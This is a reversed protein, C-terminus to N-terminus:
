FPGCNVRGDAEYGLIATGAPCSSPLNIDNMCKPSGDPRFGIFYAHPGVLTTCDFDGPEATAASCSQDQQNFVGSITNCFKSLTKSRSGRIFNFTYKNLSTDLLNKLNQLDPSYKLTAKLKINPKNAILVGNDFKTAACPGNCEWTVTYKLVCTSNGNVADFKNCAEGNLTLGSTSVKSLYLSGDGEFIDIGPQPGSPCVAGATRLCAMGPNQNVTEAWAADNDLLAILSEKVISTANRIYNGKFLIENDSYFKPLVMAFAAILGGVIVVSLLVSGKNNGINNGINNKLIFKFKISVVAAMAAMAAAM